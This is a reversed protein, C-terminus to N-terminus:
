ARGGHQSVADAASKMDPYLGLSRRGDADFAEVGARGRKILFGICVSGDYVSLCDSQFSNAEANIRRGLQDVHRAGRAMGRKPGSAAKRARM